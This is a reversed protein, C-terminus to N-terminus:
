NVHDDNYVCTNLVIGHCLVRRSIAVHQAGFTKRFLISIVLFLFIKCMFILIVCVCWWKASLAHMIVINYISYLNIVFVIVYTMMQTLCVLTHLLIIFGEECKRQVAYLSM